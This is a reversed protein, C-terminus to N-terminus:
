WQAALNPMAWGFSVAFLLGMTGWLWWFRFWIVAIIPVPLLGLMLMTLSFALSPTGPGSETEAFELVEYASGIMLGIMTWILGAGIFAPM